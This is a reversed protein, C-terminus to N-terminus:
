VKAKPILDTVTGEFVEAAMMITESLTPHPHITHAMSEASSKLEIALALEGIMEGANVGVIGAGVIQKDANFLLKTMGEARGMSWARGCAIWPFVSKEYVIGKAQAETETLGVWAIEPDTYAVSPICKAHFASSKGAVVEAAVRGESVAKHALMPNGVIDGIALIHPVRTMQRKDVAIFGRDDVLIGAHEAGINKGNPVRGVSYLLRDFREPETRNGQMEFIVYLGDPKAEIQSVSTGLLIQTRNQMRKFLPAVLDTDAGPIIQPNIDVLTVQSGLTHYVTAMEMGIVGAGVILLKEPIDSLDLAGTSDM